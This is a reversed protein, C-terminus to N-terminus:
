SSVNGSSITVEDVSNAIGINAATNETLQFAVGEDPLIWDRVILTYSGIGENPDEFVNNSESFFLERALKCNNPFNIQITLNNTPHSMRWGIFRNKNILYEVRLAVSLNDKKFEQLTFNFGANLNASDLLANRNQLGTNDFTISNKSNNNPLSIFEEHCLTLNFVSTNFHEDQEPVYSITDQITTGNSRCIYSMTEVIKFKTNDQDCETINLTLNVNTRFPMGILSKINKNYYELFGEGNAIKNNNFFVKFIDNQLSTLDDQSLKNLFETRRVISILREEFYTTWHGLDLVITLSGLVILGIGIHGVLEFFIKQIEVVTNSDITILHVEHSLIKLLILIVGYSVYKWGEKLSKTNKENSM